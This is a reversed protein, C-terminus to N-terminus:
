RGVHYEREFALSVWGQSKEFMSLRFEPIVLQVIPRDLQVSGLELRDRARGNAKETKRPSRVFFDTV